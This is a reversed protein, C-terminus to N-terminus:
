NYSLLSHTTRYPKAVCCQGNLELTRSLVTFCSHGVCCETIRSVLVVRKFNRHLRASPSASIIAGVWGFHGLVTDVRGVMAQPPIRVFRGRWRSVPQRLAPCAEAIPRGAFCLMACIAVSPTCGRSVFAASGVSRWLEVLYHVGGGGLLAAAAGTSSVTRFLDARSASLGVSSSTKALGVM